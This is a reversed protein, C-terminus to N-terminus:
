DLRVWMAQRSCTNVSPTFKQAFCYTDGTRVTESASENPQLCFNKTDNGGGWFIVFCKLEATTNTTEWTGECNDSDTSCGTDAHAATSMMLAASLVFFGRKM